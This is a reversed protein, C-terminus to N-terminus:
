CRRRSKRPLKKRKRKKKKRDLLWKVSRRSNKLVYDIKRKLLWNTLQYSLNSRKRVQTMALRRKNKRRRRLSLNRRQKRLNQTLNLWLRTLTRRLSKVTQNKKLLLLSNNITTREMSLMLPITLTKTMMMRKKKSLKLSKRRNKRNPHRKKTQPSKRKLKRKLLIKKLKTYSV